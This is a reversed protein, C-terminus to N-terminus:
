EPKRGHPRARDMIDRACERAFFAWVLLWMFLAWFVLAMYESNDMSDRWAWIGCVLATVAGVAFYLVLADFPNV